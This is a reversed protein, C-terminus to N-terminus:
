DGRFYPVPGPDFERGMSNCDSVCRYGSVNGVASRPGTWVLTHLLFNNKKNRLWFMHQPYEFSGDRHSLEKSCGFCMNLSTPLFIIVIKRKFIQKVLGM